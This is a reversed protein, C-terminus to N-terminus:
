YKDLEIYGLTWNFVGDYTVYKGELDSWSVSQYDISGKITITGQSKANEFTGYGVNQSAGPVFNKTSWSLRPTGTFTLVEKPDLSSVIQMPSVTFSSNFDIKFSDIKSFKISVINSYKNEIIEEVKNNKNDKISGSLNFNVDYYWDKTSKRTLWHYDFTKDNNAEIKATATGTSLQKNTLNDYLKVTVLFDGANAFKHKVTNKNLITETTGDGFTWVYNASAPPTTISKATLEIEQDPAGNIPNPTITLPSFSVNITDLLFDIYSTKKSDLEPGDYGNIVFGLVHKGLPFNLHIYGEDNSEALFKGDLTRVYFYTLDGPISYECQSCSAAITFANLETYFNNKPLVQWEKGDHYILQYRPFQYPPDDGITGKLMKDYEEAIGESSIIASRAFYYIDPYLTTLENANPKSEYPDFKNISYDLRIFRDKDRPYNPDAISMIARETRYVIMAHGGEDRRIGVFQPQKTLQISYAFGLYNLIDSPIKSTNSKKFFKKFADLSANIGKSMGAKVQIVSAFRYGNRNDEWFEPFRSFKGFLANDPGKKQKSYYWMATLAQGACHGRSAIYSGYNTFEWDDVGPEFGSSQVNNYLKEIEISSVVIDTWVKARVTLGGTADNLHKTAFHRTALVVHNDNVALIPIGELEGTEEDYYFGMAFHGDPVICPITVTLISDAYDGGNNIRIMPTIPNFDPGFTHSTIEATSITFTKNDSYSKPPIEISMGKLSGENVKITTGGTGANMTSITTFSGTQIKKNSPSPTDDKQCSALFLLLVLYFIYFLNNKKM